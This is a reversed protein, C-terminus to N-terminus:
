AVSKIITGDESTWVKHGKHKYVVSPTGDKSCTAEESGRLMTRKKVKESVGRGHSRKKAHDNSPPLAADLTNISFVAVSETQRTVHGLKNLLAPSPRMIPDGHQKCKGHGFHRANTGYECHGDLKRMCLFCCEIGCNCKIHNNNDIRINWRMCKPCKRSHLREECHIVVTSAVKDKNHM